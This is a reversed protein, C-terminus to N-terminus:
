KVRAKLWRFTRSKDLCRLSFAADDQSFAISQLRSIAEKPTLAGAKVQEKYGSHKLTNM